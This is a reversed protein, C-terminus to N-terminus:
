RKNIDTIETYLGNTNPYSDGAGGFANTFLSSAGTNYTFDAFFKANFAMPAFTALRLESPSPDRYVTSNYDQLAHFTQRYVGLPIGAGRAYERDQRLYGFWNAVLGSGPGPIPPGTHNPQNIDYVSQWPYTDFCMMDPKARTVFDALAADTLQGGWNNH